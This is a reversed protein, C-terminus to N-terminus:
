FEYGQGVRCGTRDRGPMGRHWLDFLLLLLRGLPRWWRRADRVIGQEPFVLQALEEAAAGEGFDIVRAIDAGALADGDLDDVLLLEGAGAEHGVDFALDSDHAAEAM